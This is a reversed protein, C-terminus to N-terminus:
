HQKVYILCDTSPAESYLDCTNATLIFAYGITLYVADVRAIHDMFVYMGHEVPLFDLIFASTTQTLLM